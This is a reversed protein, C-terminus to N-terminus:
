LRLEGSRLYRRLMQEIRRGQADDFFPPVAPDRGYSMVNNRTESHPNGFFHGLEHALVTEAAIGSVVVFHKTRDARERWHVGMRMRSPEDVDRLSQVLFVHVAGGGLYRALADRDRRSELRAHAAPLAEVRAVRFGVRVPAFIRNAWELQAALFAEDVAPGGDTDAVFIALPVVRVAGESAPAADAHPQADARPAGLALALSMAAALRAKASPGRRALARSGSAAAIV